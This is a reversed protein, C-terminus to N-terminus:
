ATRQQVAQTREDRGFVRDMFFTSTNIINRYNSYTFIIIIGLTVIALSLMIILFIKSKLKKIM